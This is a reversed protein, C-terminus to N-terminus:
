KGCCDRAELYDEYAAGCVPCDYRAVSLRRSMNSVCKTTCENCLPRFGIADSGLFANGCVSCKQAVSRTM